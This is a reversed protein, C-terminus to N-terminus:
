GGFQIEDNFTFVTKVIFCNLDTNAKIESAKISVINFEDVSKCLECVIEESTIDNASFPIYINAGVSINGFKINDGISSEDFKMEKIGVSIIPAKILTEKAEVPYARVIKKDYFYDNERLKYIFDEIIRNPYIM